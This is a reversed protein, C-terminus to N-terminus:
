IRLEVDNLESNNLFESFGFITYEYVHHLLIICIQLFLELGSKRYIDVTKDSKQEMSCYIMLNNKIPAM